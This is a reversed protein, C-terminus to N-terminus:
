LGPVGPFRKDSGYVIAGRACTEEDEIGRAVGYGFMLDLELLYVGM